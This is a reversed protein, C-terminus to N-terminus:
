VVSRLDAALRERARALLREVAKVTLGMTEAIEAYGLDEYHRLVVAMRQRPPLGDLALRVAGARGDSEMVSEASPAPDPRDWPLAFIWRKRAAARDLCLRVVIRRLYHLFPATPRYAPAARLLRIFAEQAIDEAEHRDNLFRSAVAWATGHHRQALVEFAGRDGRGAAQLLEEDSRPETMLVPRSRRLAPM